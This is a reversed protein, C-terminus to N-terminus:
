ENGLDDVLHEEIVDTWVDVGKQSTVFTTEFRFPSSCQLCYSKASYDFLHLLIIELRVHDENVKALSKVADTM